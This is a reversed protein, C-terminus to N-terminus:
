NDTTPQPAKLDSSLKSAETDARQRPLSRSRAPKVAGVEEVIKIVLTNM